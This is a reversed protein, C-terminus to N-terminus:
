YECNGNKAKAYFCWKCAQASPRPSFTEDMLLPKAAAEWKQKLHPVMDRTFPADSELTIGADIFILQTDVVEALPYMLFGALAYLELQLDYEAHAERLKGSKFDAILMRGDGDAKPPVVADAKVRLWCDKAFWDCPSWDVRFAFEAEPVAHALRLECLQLHIKALEAPLQALPDRLFTECQEHLAIGRELHQNKPEAIKDLKSFRVKAPCELYQQLTSFSWAKVRRESSPATGQTIRAM